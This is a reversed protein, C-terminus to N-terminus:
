FFVVGHIGAGALLFGRVCLSPDDDGGDDQHHRRETDEGHALARGGRARRGGAHDPDLASFKRHPAVLGIFLVGLFSRAVGDDDLAEPHVDGLDGVCLELGENVRRLIDGVGLLVEVRTLERLRRWFHKFAARQEELFDGAYVWELAATGIQRPPVEGGAGVPTLGFARFRGDLLAHVM